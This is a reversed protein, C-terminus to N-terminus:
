PTRALRLKKWEGVWDRATRFKIPAVKGAIAEAAADMSKFRNMNSDLWVFIDQKIARNETHRLQAHSRAAQSKDAIPLGQHIADMLFKYGASLWNIANYPKDQTLSEISEDFALLAEVLLGQIQQQDSKYSTQSFTVAPIKAPFEDGAASATNRLDTIISNVADTIPLAVFCGGDDRLFRDMWPLPYLDGWIFYPTYAPCLGRFLTTVTTLLNDIDAILEECEGHGNQQALLRSHNTIHREGTQLDLIINRLQM